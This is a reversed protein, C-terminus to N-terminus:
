FRYLDSVSDEAKVTQRYHSQGFVTHLRESEVSVVSYHVALYVTKLFQFVVKYFLPVYKFAVAVAFYKQRKVALVAHFKEFHQVRFEGANDVVPFRPLIDRRSIRDTNARKIVTVIIFANDDKSRFRFIEHSYRIFYQREGRPM